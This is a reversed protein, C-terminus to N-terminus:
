TITVIIVNIVDFQLLFTNLFLSFFIEIKGLISNQDRAHCAPDSVVRDRNSAKFKLYNRLSNVYQNFQYLYLAILRQRIFVKAREKSFSQFM